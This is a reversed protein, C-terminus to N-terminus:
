ESDLINSGDIFYQMRGYINLQMEDTSLFKSPVPNGNNDEQGIVKIEVRLYISDQNFLGLRNDNLEISDLGTSTSGIELEDILLDATGSEFDLTDQSMLVTIMSGFEFDNNYQVFLVINEIEEPVIESENENLLTPDTTILADQGIEFELPARVSLEGLIIDDSTVSGVTGDGGVRASGYALIQDPQINILVSANPVIVTSSDSINWNSISVTKSIGNSNSSVLTLDLFVPISIGSEFDISIEVNAFDFGDMDEPLASIEKKVTDISVDVTDVIGTISGFWLTDILVDITISDNLTLSLLQDSPISLTSTYNVSQSDLPVSLTYGSLDIERQFPDPSSSIQFSTELPDSGQKLEEISFIVDAELGIFNQITFLIKGSDIQATQIKTDNDLDIRDMQINDDQNLYGSVADFTLDSLNMTINISDQLYYTNTEVLTTTNTNYTLRQDDVSVPQLEYDSLSIAFGNEGSDIFLVTDLISNGRILEPVTLHVNASGGISNDVILNMQGNSISASLIRSESEINIDGSQEVIQSEIQGSVSSFFIESINLDLEVNDTQSISINNPETDDTTITYNYDLYQNEFDMVLSWGDLDVTNLLFSGSELLFNLKLTSDISEYYLSPIKLLINGTLLLNNTVSIDLAGHSMIAQEVITESPNITIFSTDEITQSPVIASAETVNFDRALVNITFTSSLDAITVAVQEGQSGNSTGSVEVLMDGPLTMGSVNHSITSSDGAAIESNWILQFLETGISNKIDVYIPAGLPIFLNNYIKVDIFGSDVTASTFSDFSITKQQPVLAVTDVVVEASGGSATIAAEIIDVLSTPMADSFSIPDTNQSGINDLNILGIEADILESIDDLGVSDYEIAFRTQSSDIDIANAYQVIDKEIPDIKLKDGVTVTDLQITKNFVFISDGEDGLPYTTILSDELFENLDVTTQIIPVELITSWRPLKNEDPNDLACGVFFFILIIFLSYKL